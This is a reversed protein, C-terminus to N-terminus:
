PICHSIDYGCAGDIAYKEVNPHNKATLTSVYEMWFLIPYVIINWGYYYSHYVIILVHSVEKETMTYSLSIGHSQIM